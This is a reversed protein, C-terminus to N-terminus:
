CATSPTWMHKLMRLFTGFAIAELIVRRQTGVTITLSDVKGETVSKQM